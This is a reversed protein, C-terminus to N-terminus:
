RPRKFTFIAAFIICASLGTVTVLPLNAILWDGTKGIEKGLDKDTNEADDADPNPSSPQNPIEPKDPEEPSNDDIRVIADDTLPSDLSDADLVAVNKVSSGVLTEASPAAKYEIAVLDGENLNGIIISFGNGDIVPQCDILEGNKSMTISDFAIPMTAPMSTDSVVANEVTGNEASVTITYTAVEDLKLRNRDVTKVISPNNTAGLIEIDNEDVGELSGEATARAINQVSESEKEMNVQYSVILEEEDALDIGTLLDFGSVKGDTRTNFVPEISLDQGDPGKVTLSDPIISVSDNQTFSDHVAVNKATAHERTQQISLTYTGTEGVAYASKDSVKDIVLRAGDVEVIEDDTTSTNPEDTAALATNDITSGALEADSIAIQYEVTILTEGSQDLPNPGDEEDLRGDIWIPRTTGESVIDRNTEIIFTEEEHKTNITCSDTIDENRSDYVRISDRLLEVGETQALDSIVLNRGLTGPTENAVAVHYVIHDGVSFSDLNAEKTVSLHPQNVWVTESDADKESNDATCKAENEIAWGSVEDTPYAKYTITLTTTDNLHDLSLAFGTGIPNLQWTVERQETQQHSQDDDSIPYPINGFSGEARDGTWNESSDSGDDASVSVLMHGDKDRGIAMGEPLSDDTIVVNNAITGQQANKLTLTYEFYGPFQDSPGVYGEYRDVSKDVDLSATNIWIEAPDDQDTANIAHISANNGIERGNGHSCARAQYTVTITDGYNLKDISYSWKNDNIDPEPLDKLGSANLSNAILELGEPLNDSIIVQRAQANKTIQKYVVTYTIIEDVQYEYSDATKDVSFEPELLTTDVDNSPLKGTHNILAYSSNRVYLKGDIRQGNEPYETLIAKFVFIYHEGKMDMTQLYNPDFEFRVTNETPNENDGEYIVRGANEIVKGSSDTVYGSGDVYRMEAPLVDIIDLNTYHYGGRCNVGQEHATFDISYTVHDDLSVGSTKDASKIPPVLDDNFDDEPPAITLFESTMAFFSVCNNTAGNRWSTGFYLEAPKGAKGTEETTDYYTGVLGMRYEVPDIDYQDVLARRSSQIRSSNDIVSLHDNNSVYRAQIISGGFGFSQNVDLDMCTMHGKIKIPTDSGAYVWKVNVQLNALGVTYFNFNQYGDADDVGSKWLDSVFVGPKFTQFWGQTVDWFGNWGVSPEVYDWDVISVLADVDDRGYKGGTYRLTPPNAPDPKTSGDIFFAYGPGKPAVTNRDGNELPPSGATSYYQSVDEQYTWGSVVKIDTFNISSGYGPEEFEDEDVKRIEIPEPAGFVRHFVPSMSGFISAALLAFTMIVAAIHSAPERRRRRAAKTSTSHLTM